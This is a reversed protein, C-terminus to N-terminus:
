LKKKVLGALVCAQYLYPLLVHLYKKSQFALKEIFLM